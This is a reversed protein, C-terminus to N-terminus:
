EKLVAIIDDDNLAVYNENDLDQIVKGAYKAFVVVDGVTAWPIFGRLNADSPNAALYFGKWADPGIATVTGKDLGAQARQRDETEPIVIGAAKAQKFTPDHDEVRERKVLVRHGVPIIM